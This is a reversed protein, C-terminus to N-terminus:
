SRAIPLGRLARVKERLEIRYKAQQRLLKREESGLGRSTFTRCVSPAKRNQKEAIEVMSKGHYKLLSFAESFQADWEQIREIGRGSIKGHRRLCMSKAISGPTRGLSTAIEAYSTDTKRSREIHAIEEPTYIDGKM